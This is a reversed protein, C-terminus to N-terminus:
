SNRYEECIEEANGFRKVHGKELWVIKNCISKVQDISHSVFLITTGKDMMAHIREECKKQFRFDGVSLVEDVILIDPTGITAIAFALRSVMGSSYNKVPVDMFERLESFEVIDEYHQEMVERSHGLIAGNLYVNERATLDLDFGAGLEILPAVGGNVTVKGETPKLVGAITKLMTSKGSGNLGVLGLSDGRYVEFSVNKLAWFEEYSVQNKLSKIVYEKFTDFRETSLNFKISVNEVKIIAEQKEM